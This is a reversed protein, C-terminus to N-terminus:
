MPFGARALQSRFKISSRTTWAQKLATDLITWDASIPACSSRRVWYTAKCPWSWTGRAPAESFNLM